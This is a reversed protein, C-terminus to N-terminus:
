FWKLTLDVLKQKTDNYPPMMLEITSWPWSQKYVARANSFEQFAFQGHSKGIGSHNVGGFPLNQNFFHLCSHNVCTGGSSTNDIIRRVSARDRSYIYLALPKDRAQIEKLVEDISRYAIVPLLPGFIEEQMLPAAPDVHSLITPSIYRSAADTQGGFEVIAGRQIADTLLRDVREFHLENVIRCYSGSQQPDSGYFQEINNQLAAIFADHKNEHVYVHDTALCIQGNNFCKAWAVRRAAKAIDATEDVITPSKGGLELTVSALHRAAAAMVIKGVSSSGTFFIHNFPLDLLAAAVDKSGQLLAVEDEDFSSAVIRQMVAASNPTYESPKLIATNGAAIAGVLPGLTLNIPFNWPSQILV